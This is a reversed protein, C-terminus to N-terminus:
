KEMFDLVYILVESGKETERYIRWFNVNIFLVPTAHLIQLLSRYKNKKVEAGGCHQHKGATRHAHDHIESPVAGEAMIGCGSLDTILYPM